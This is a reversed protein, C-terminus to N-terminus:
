PLEAGRAAVYLAYWDERSMLVQSAQACALIRQPQTTGIVPQVATPHRMLWALVIAETSVQYKEALQHVLKATAQIEGTQESLDRGSFNGRCLSGWAQIQVKNLQCYELTGATFNLHQGLPNGALAGEDLWGLQQLSIEIQNVVLPADLYRQLFALQQGHMNSVGFHHVKGSAKLAGFVEAVEEPQMLPDPRHLLLTDLYDVGLRALIGDVSHKIWAASFDYRKPGAEDQFRIACKSQLYIQERLAPRQKLVEGFVQEAKGRTYIDAHDFFNIGAELAADVAAHAHRIHEADIASADWPGGLGMCGYVLASAGPLASALPGKTTVTQTM